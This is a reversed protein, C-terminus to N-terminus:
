ILTGRSEVRSFMTKQEEDSLVFDTVQKVCPYVRRLLPTNLIFAEVLRWLTRGVVSAPLAGFLVVIGLAILFGIVSGVTGQVLIRDLDAKPLGNPGQGQQILWVLGRNIYVSINGQVFAYGWALIWLTLITPLLVVLGRFFCRKVSKTVSMWGRCGDAAM